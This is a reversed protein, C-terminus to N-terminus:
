PISRQELMGDKFQSSRQDAIAEHARASESPWMVGLSVTRMSYM